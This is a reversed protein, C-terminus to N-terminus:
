TKSTTSLILEAKTKSLGRIKALEQVDSNLVEDLSYFNHEYLRKALEKGVGPLTTFPLYFVCMPFDDYKHCLKKWYSKYATNKKPLDNLKSLKEDHTLSSEIITRFNILFPQYNEPDVLGIDSQHKSRIGPIAFQAKVNVVWLGDAPTGYIPAQSPSGSFREGHHSLINLPTIVKLTAIFKVGDVIDRNQQYQLEQISSSKSEQSDNNFIRTLWGM